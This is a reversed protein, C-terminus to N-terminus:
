AKVPERTGTAPSTNGPMRSAVNPQAASTAGTVQVNDFAVTDLMGFNHSTDFLGITVPGTMALTTTGIQTWNTGDASLWATFTNGARQLKLSKNPSSFGAPYSTTGHSGPGTYQMAAGNGMAPNVPPLPSLCGDPTCGVGNVNPTLPTFDPTVLVDVFPAGATASQKIM